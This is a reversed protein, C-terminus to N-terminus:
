PKQINSNITKAKHYVSYKNYAKSHLSDKSNLLISDTFQTFEQEKFHLKKSSGFPGKLKSKESNLYFRGHKSKWKGYDDVLFGTHTSSNYYYTSDSNLKLTKYYYGFRGANYSESDSNDRIRKETSSCALNLFLAIIIARKM